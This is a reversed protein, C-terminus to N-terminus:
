PVSTLTDTGRQFVERRDDMSSLAEEAAHTYEVFNMMHEVARRFDDEQRIEAGPSGLVRTLNEAAPTVEAAALKLWHDVEEYLNPADPLNGLGECDERFSDIASHAETRWQESELMGPESLIMEEFLYFEHFSVYCASLVRDVEARYVQGPVPIPDGPLSPRLEDPIEPAQTTPLDGGTVPLNPHM